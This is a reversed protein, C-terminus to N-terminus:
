EDHNIMIGITVPDYLGGCVAFLCHKPCQKRTKQLGVGQDPQGKMPFSPEHIGMM